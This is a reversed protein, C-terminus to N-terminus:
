FPAEKGLIDKIWYMENFHNPPFGTCLYLNIFGQEYLEKALDQGSLNCGLNSDIYIPTDKNYSMIEARLTLITNYAKVQKGVKEGHLVWADTLSPNDDLIILDVNQGTTAYLPM